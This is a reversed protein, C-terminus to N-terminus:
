RREPVDLGNRHVDRDIRSADAPAFRRSVTGAGCAPEALLRHPDIGGRVPFRRERTSGAPVVGTTRREGPESILSITLAVARRALVTAHVPRLSSRM